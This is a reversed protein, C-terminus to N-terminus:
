EFSGRRTHEKQKLALIHRGHSLALPNATHSCPTCQLVLHSGRCSTIPIELSNFLVNNGPVVNDHNRPIPSPASDGLQIVLVPDEFLVSNLSRENSSLQPTWYHIITVSAKLLDYTSPIYHEIYGQHNIGKLEM